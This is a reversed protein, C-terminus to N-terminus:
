CFALPGSLAGARTERTMTKYAQYGECYIIGRYGWDAIAKPTAHSTPRGPGRKGDLATRRRYSEVTARRDPLSTRSM